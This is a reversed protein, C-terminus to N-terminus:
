RPQQEEGNTIHTNNLHINQNDFQDEERTAQIVQTCDIVGFANPLGSMAAFHM